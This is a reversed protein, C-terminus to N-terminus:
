RPNKGQLQERRLREQRYREAVGLEFPLFSAPVGRHHASCRYCVIVDGVTLYLVGDIVASAILISWAVWPRYLAHAALFALSAVTLIMLGLWHPFDKKKYLEQNDCIACRTLESGGTIQLTHGCAHCVWEAPGPATL